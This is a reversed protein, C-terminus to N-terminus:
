LRSYAPLYSREFFLESDCKKVPRVLRSFQCLGTLKEIIIESFHPASKQIRLDFSRLQIFVALVIDAEPAQLSPIHCGPERLRYLSEGSFIGAGPDAQGTEVRLLQSSRQEAVIQFYDQSKLIRHQPELLEIEFIDDLARLDKLIRTQM